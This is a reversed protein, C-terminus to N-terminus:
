AAKALSLGEIRAVSAADLETSFGFALPMPDPTVLVVGDAHRWEASASGFHLRGDSADAVLRSLSDFSSEADVVWTAGSAQRVGELTGSTAPAVFAARTETVHERFSLVAREFAFSAAEGSPQFAVLTLPADSPLNAIQITAGRTGRLILTEGGRFAGHVHAALAALEERLEASGVGAFELGEPGALVAAEINSGALLAGLTGVPSAGRDIGLTREFQRLEARAAEEHANARQQEESAADRHRLAEAVLRASRARGFWYGAVLTLLAGGAALLWPLALSM